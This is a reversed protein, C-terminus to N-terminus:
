VIKHLRLLTCCRLTGRPRPAHRCPRRMAPGTIIVISPMTAGSSTLVAPRHGNIANRRRHASYDDYPRRRANIVASDNQVTQRDTQCLGRTTRGDMRICQKSVSAIHQRCSSRDIVADSMKDRHLNLESM